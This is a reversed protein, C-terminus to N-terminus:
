DLEDESEKAPEFRPKLYKMAEADNVGVLLGLDRLRRELVARNEQLLDNSITMGPPPVDICFGYQDHLKKIFQKFSLAQIGDKSAGRLVHLHVFYELASDTFILSRVDRKKKGGDLGVKRIVSRRMALGNPRSMLLVSDIFEHLKLHQQFSTLTEALRWVANPQAKDNRLAEAAEPYEEEFRDALDETKSDFFYHIPRAEDRREHLIEGLLNIWETAYPRTQIELNKLNRDNRAGYDLLRLVMLVVPFSEIRRFFDDTSQEALARLRRDVGNSCDVFFYAPEQNSKKRIEGTQAWEFLIEIVSTVIVTLGVAICTELMEVFAQRPIVRAYKRVFNRIDESFHRSALEAIPRQNSIREGEKGRLKDPAAGLVQALRIMILQDLGVLKSEDFRDSTRSGLEGERVVGKHFAQLLVNNEFGRGVAFWTKDGDKSQEIHEGKQDALLAVIMEPIYRLDTVKEPLDMWSAMYHSPAVRQVQEDRGLAYRANELSFCLLLDSLIARETEDDFGTFSDSESLKGAIREITAGRRRQKITGEESGFAEKGEAHGSDSCTSFQQYSM